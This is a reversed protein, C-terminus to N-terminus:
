KPYTGRSNFVWVSWWIGVFHGPLCGPVISTYCSLLTPRVSQIENYCSTGYTCINCKTQIHLFYKSFTLKFCEEYPRLTKNSFPGARCYKNREHFQSHATHVTVNNTTQTCKMNPLISKVQTRHLWHLRMLEYIEGYLGYINGYWFGFSVSSRKEMEEMKKGNVEFM